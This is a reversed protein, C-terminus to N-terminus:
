KETLQFIQERLAHEEGRFSDVMGGLFIAPELKDLDFPHGARMALVTLFSLQTRGNGERFPHIANLTALFSAAEFTFKTRDLHSLYKKERLSRFLQQMERRINEPYCFMSGGKSM